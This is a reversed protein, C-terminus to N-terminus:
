PEAPQRAPAELCRNRWAVVADRLRQQLASDLEQKRLETEWGNFRGYLWQDFDIRPSAAYGTVPMDALCAALARVARDDSRWWLWELRDTPQDGHLWMALMAELQEDPSQPRAAGAPFMVERFLTSQQAFQERTIPEVGTRIRDLTGAIWSPAPDEQYFMREPPVVMAITLLGSECSMAYGPVSGRTLKMTAPDLAFECSKGEQWASDAGLQNQYVVPLSVQDLVLRLPRAETPRASAVCAFALVALQDPSMEGYRIRVSGTPDDPELCLWEPRVVPNPPTQHPLAESETFAGNAGARWKEYYPLLPHAIVGLPNQWSDGHWVPVLWVTGDDGCEGEFKFPVFVPRREGVGPDPAVGDLVLYTAGPVSTRDISIGPVRLPEFKGRAGPEAEPYFYPKEYKAAWAPKPVGDGEVVITLPSSEHMGFSRLLLAQLSVAFVQEQSYPANSPPRANRVRFTAICGPMQTTDSLSCSIGFLVALNHEYEPRGDALFHGHYCPRSQFIATHAGYGHNSNEIVPALPIRDPQSANGLYAPQGILGTGVITADTRPFSVAAALAAVALTPLRTM